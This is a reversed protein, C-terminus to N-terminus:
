IRQYIDSDILMKLEKQQFNCFMAVNYYFYCLKKNRLKMLELYSGWELSDMKGTYIPFYLYFKRMFLINEYSFVRSNGFYYGLYCSCKNIINECYVRKEFTFKGIKWFLKLQSKKIKIV